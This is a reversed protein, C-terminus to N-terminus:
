KRSPQESESVDGDHRLQKWAMMKFIEISDKIGDTPYGEKELEEMEHNMIKLLNEVGEKSLVRAMTDIFTRNQLNTMIKQYYAEDFEKGTVMQTLTPEVWDYSETLRSETLRSFLRENRKNFHKRM